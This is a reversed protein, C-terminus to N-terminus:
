DNKILKAAFFGDILFNEFQRPVINIFGDINVLEKNKDSYYKDITFNNNEKLFNNVQLTTEIPLFSCVMYVIIGNKNLINKAKSLLDNQKKVLFKLDPQKTRFFIEPHRRLTGVSSCPADILVIDYKKNENVDLSDKITVGNNYGLRDLNNELQKARKYNIELMDLDAKLSIAQFSKGGPAACMDIIKKDNIKNLLYLPLMAAYDQVWRKGDKFEPIKEIESSELFILSKESTQITKLTNFIKSVSKKFVLHLNPKQLISFIFDKQFIRLM